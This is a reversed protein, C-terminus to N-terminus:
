PHAALDVREHLGTPSDCVVGTRPDLRPDDLLRDLAEPPADPDVLVRAVEDVLADLADDAPAVVPVLEGDPGVEPAVMAGWLDWLLLEHGALHALEAIVYNRVFWRGRLPLDPSVGYGELDADTLRGDRHDLWVHAATRFPSDPGTGLDTVDVAFAAPDMQTDVRVWRREDDHWHEAVVHDFAWGELLYPAFGVRSRAALGHERAAAVFLLTFDRCCGVVCADGERPRDLPAPDHEHLHELLRSAWRSDVEALREPAFTLGSAVYHVVLGRVADALTRPDAPLTRLLDASAGPRTYPTHRRYREVAPTVV